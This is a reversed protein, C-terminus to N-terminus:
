LISVEHNESSEDDNNSRWYSGHSMKMMKLAKFMEIKEKKTEGMEMYLRERDQGKRIGM